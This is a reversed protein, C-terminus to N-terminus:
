LNLLDLPEQCNSGECSRVILDKLKEVEMKKKKGSDEIWVFDLFRLEPFFIGVYKCVNGFEDGTPGCSVILIPSLLPWSMFDVFSQM